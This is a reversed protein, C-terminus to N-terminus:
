SELGTMYGNRNREAVFLDGTGAPVLKHRDNGDRYVTGSGVGTEECMYEVEDNYGHQTRVMGVTIDYRDVYWEWGAQGDTIKGGRCAWCARLLTGDAAYMGGGGRCELCDVKRFTKRRTVVDVKSGLWFQTKVVHEHM